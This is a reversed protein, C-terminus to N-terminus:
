DHLLPFLSPKAQPWCLSIQQVATQPRHTGTPTGLPTNRIIPIPSSSVTVVLGQKAEPATQLAYQPGTGNDSFGGPAQQFQAVLGLPQDVSPDTVPPSEQPTPFWIPKATYHQAFSVAGMILTLAQVPPLVTAFM